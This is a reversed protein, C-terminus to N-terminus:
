IPRFDTKCRYLATIWLSDVTWPTGQNPRKECTPRRPYCRRDTPDVPDSFFRYTVPFKLGFSANSTQKQDKKFCAKRAKSTCSLLTFKLVLDPLRPSSRTSDQNLSKPQHQASFFKRIGPPSISRRNKLLTGPSPVRMSIQTASILVM